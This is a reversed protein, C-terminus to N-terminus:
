RNELMAYLASEIGARLEDAAPAATAPTPDEPPSQAYGAALLRPDLHSLAGIAAARAGEVAEGIPLPGSAGGAVYVGEFSSAYQEDPNPRAVYGAGDVEFGVKGSLGDLGASPRVASSLVVMDYSDEPVRNSSFDAYTSQVKNNDVGELKQLLGSNVMLGAPLGQRLSDLEEKSLPATVLVAVENIDQGIVRRIQGTLTDVAFPTLDDLVFLISQPYDENSPKAVFGGTPGPATLLREMEASTVIDPHTGYGRSEAHSSDDVEFGVAVVVAGVQRLHVREIPMDFFIANDDCVETCRNCPLYNPPTNLCSEIDIVFEAPLTDSLPTYIAKRYSLGADHENPRVVPCVPRCHNCRTCADTVFRAHERISVEFNGPRGQLADIEALTFVEINPNAAITDLKPVPAGDISDAVSSKETMAAALRGGIVADREVVIVQAGAEASTLAATLGAVGGGVVLISDTM